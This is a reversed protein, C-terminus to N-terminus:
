FDEESVMVVLMNIPEGTLTLEVKNEEYNPHMIQLAINLSSTTFYKFEQEDSTASEEGALEVTGIIGPTPDDEYIRWEYGTIITNLADTVKFKFSYNGPDTPAREQSYTGNITTTAKSTNPCSIGEFLTPVCVTM